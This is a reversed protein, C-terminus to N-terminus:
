AQRFVFLSSGVGVVDGHELHSQSGRDLPRGNKSVRTSAARLDLLRYGDEEEVIEAAQADVYPDWDVSLDANPGRGLIWGRGPSPAKGTMALTSGIDAGHVVTLSAGAVKPQEWTPPRAPQLPAQADEALKRLSEALEYLGERRYRYLHRQRGRSARETVVLGADSLCKLHHRVGERTLCRQRGGDTSVSVEIEGIPKAERLSQLIELRRPYAVAKLSQVLDDGADVM